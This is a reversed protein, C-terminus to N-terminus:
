WSAGQGLRTPSQGRRRNIRQTMVVNFGAHLVAAGLVSGSLLAIALTVALLPIKAVVQHAGYQLHNYLFIASSVVIVACRGPWPLERAANVFVGRYLLEEAVGVAAMVQWRLLASRVRLAPRAPGRRTATSIDVSRASTRAATAGVTSRVRRGYFWRRALRDDAWLVAPLLACGALVGAVTRVPGPPVWWGPGGALWGIAVLVVLVCLYLESPTLGLRRAPQRFMLLMQTAGLSGLWVIPWAYSAVGAM